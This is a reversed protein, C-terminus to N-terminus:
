VLFFDEQIYSYLMHIGNYDVAKFAGVKIEINKDNFPWYPRYITVDDDLPRIEPNVYVSLIGLAPSVESMNRYTLVGDLHFGLYFQLTDSNLKFDSNDAQRKHRTLESSISSGHAAATAAHIVDRKRRRSPVQFGDPIDIEPTPCTM